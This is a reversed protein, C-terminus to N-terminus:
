KKIVKVSQLHEHGLMVRVIYLGNTYTQLSMGGILESARNLLLIRGVMDILM